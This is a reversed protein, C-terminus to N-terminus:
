APNRTAGVAQAERTAQNGARGRHPEGLYIHEAEIDNVKEDDLVHSKEATECMQEVTISDLNALFIEGARRVAPDIVRELLV